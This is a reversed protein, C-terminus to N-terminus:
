ELTKRKHSKKKMVNIAIDIKRHPCGIAIQSVSYTKSKKIKINKKSPTSDIFNKSTQRSNKPYKISELTGFLFPSTSVILGVLM